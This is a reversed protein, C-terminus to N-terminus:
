PEALIGACLNKASSVATCVTCETNHFPINAFLTATYHTHNAALPNLLLTSYQAFITDGLIRQSRATFSKASMVIVVRVSVACSSRGTM